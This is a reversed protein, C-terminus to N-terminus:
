YLFLKSSTTVICHAVLPRGAEPKDVAVLIDQSRTSSNTWLTKRTGGYGDNVPM